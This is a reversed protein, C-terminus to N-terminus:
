KPVIQRPSSDAFEPSNAIKPIQEEEDASLKIAHPPRLATLHLDDIIGTLKLKKTWRFYTREDIGMEKCAKSLSAGNAKAENILELTSLRDTASIM